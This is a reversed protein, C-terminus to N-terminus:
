DLTGPSFLMPELSRRSSAPASSGFRLPWTCTPHKHLKKVQSLRITSTTAKFLTLSVQLFAPSCIKSVREM